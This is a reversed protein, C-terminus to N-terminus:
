ANYYGQKILYRVDLSWNITTTAGLDLPQLASVCWLVGTGPPLKRMARSNLFTADAAFSFLNDAIYQFPIRIIWDLDARLTPSPASGPSAINTVVSDLGLADAQNAADWAILGVVVQMPLTQPLAGQVPVQTTSQVVARTWTEDNPVIQESGQANTKDPDFLGSPWKAWDSAVDGITLDINQGVFTNSGWFAKRRKAGSRGSSRKRFRRM